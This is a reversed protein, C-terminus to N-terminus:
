KYNAQNSVLNSVTQELFDVTNGLYENDYIQAKAYNETSAQAMGVFNSDYAFKITVAALIILVIITIVLAVLTIGRMGRM